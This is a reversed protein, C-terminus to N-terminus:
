QYILLLSLPITPWKDNMFYDFVKVAHRLLVSNFQLLIFKQWCCNTSFLFLFHVGPFTWYINFPVVNIIDKYFFLEMPIYLLLSM